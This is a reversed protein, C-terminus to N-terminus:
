LPIAGQKVLEHHQAWEQLAYELTEERSLPPDGPESLEVAAYQLLEDIKDAQSLDCNFILRRKMEQLEDPAHQQVVKVFDRYPQEIAAEIIQPIRKKEPLKSLLKMNEATMRELQYRPVSDGLRRMTGKAALALSHSKPISGALWQNFSRYYEGDSGKLLAWRKMGQYTGAKIPTDMELCQVGLELFDSALRGAIGRVRQDIQRALALEATDIANVNM